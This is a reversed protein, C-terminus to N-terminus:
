QILLQDTGKIYIGSPAGNYIIDDKIGIIRGLLDFVPGQGMYPRSSGVRDTTYGSISVGTYEYAGIDAQGTYLAAGIFDIGGNNSIQTGTNICPSGAKLKFFAALRELDAKTPIEGPKLRGPKETANFLPDGIVASGGPNVPTHGSFCNHDFTRGSNQYTINTTGNTHFINNRFTGAGDFVFGQGDDRYFVNNYYLPSGNFFGQAGHVAQRSGDNYSINYRCTHGPEGGLNFGGENYCSYNYQYVADGTVDIDFDWAQGDWMIVMTSECYNYQFVPSLSGYSWIGAVALGNYGLVGPGRPNTGSNNGAKICSNLEVLPYEAHLLEIGDAGSNYVANSRIITHYSMTYSFVFIGTCTLDHVYNGKITVSDTVSANIFIGANNYLHYETSDLSTGRPPGVQNHNSCGEVWYVENNRITIGKQDGGWFGSRIGSRKNETGDFIDQGDYNTVAFGDVIIYSVENKIFITAETNGQGNILPKNGTGYASFTIPNGSAGM